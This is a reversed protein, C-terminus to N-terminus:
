THEMNKKFEVELQQKIKELEFLKKQMKAEKSIGDDHMCTGVTVLKNRNRLETIGPEFVEDVFSNIVAHKAQLKHMPLISLIDRKFAEKKTNIM